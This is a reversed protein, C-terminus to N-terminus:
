TRAQGLRARMVVADGLDTAIKEVVVGSASARRHFMFDHGDLSIFTLAPCHALLASRLYILDPLDRVAPHGHPAEEEYEPSTFVWSIVLHELTRPLTPADALAIFFSTAQRNVRDSSLVMEESHVRIFVSLRTLRTFFASVPALAAHEFSGFHLDLMTIGSPSQVGELQQMFLAPNASISPGYAEVHTLTPLALFMPLTRFSGKYARLMPLTKAVELGENGTEGGKWPGVLSLVEVAPFKSLITLNLSTSSVAVTLSLTHVRHFQPLTPIISALFRPICTLDLERLHDPRLLPFWFTAGDFQFDRGAIKFSSVKLELSSLDIHEGPAVGCGDIHLHTLAPLRCLNSFGLATFHVQHAYFRGLGTFRELRQFLPALLIYPTDTHRRPASDACPKIECSRVLPAIDESTWFDLRELARKIKMVPPLLVTRGSIAYPYFHFDAFILHRSLRSFIRHTLSLYKLTEWPLHALIELWLEEPVQDLSVM